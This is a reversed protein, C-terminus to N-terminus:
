LMSVKLLEPLSLVVHAVNLIDLAQCVFCGTGSM